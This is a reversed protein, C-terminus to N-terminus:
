PQMRKADTAKEAPQWGRLVASPTCCVFEQILMLSVLHPARPRCHIQLATSSGHEVEEEVARNWAM